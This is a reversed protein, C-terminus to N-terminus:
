FEGVKLLLIDIGMALQHVNNMTWLEIMWIRIYLHNVTQTSLISYFHCMLSWTWVLDLFTELLIHFVCPSCHLNPLLIISDCVFLLSTPPRERILKRAYSLSVLWTTYFWRVIRWSFVLPLISLCCVLFGLLCLQQWREVCAVTLVEGADSTSWEVTM